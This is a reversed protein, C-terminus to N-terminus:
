VDEFEIRPAVSRVALPLPNDQVIYLDGHRNFDDGLGEVVAGTWLAMADNGLTLQRTSDKRTGISPRQTKHFSLAAEYSRRVKGFTTGQQADVDIRMPRVVSEYPLGAIVHTVRAPLDIKGQAGVTIGQYIVGNALVDVVRGWLHPVLYFSSASVYVTVKSNEGTTPGDALQIWSKDSAVAAVQYEGPPLPGSTVEVVVYDGTQFGEFIGYPGTIRQNSPTYNLGSGIFGDFMSTSDTFCWDQPNDGHDLPALREILVRYNGAAGYDRKSAIWVQDEGATPVVCVALIPDASKHLAWAQVDHDPEYTM